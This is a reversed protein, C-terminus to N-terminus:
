HGYIMYSLQDIYEKPVGSSQLKNQLTQIFTPLSSQAQTGYEQTTLVNSPSAVKTGKKYTM